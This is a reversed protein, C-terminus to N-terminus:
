KRGMGWVMFVAQLENLAKCIGQALDSDVAEEQRM